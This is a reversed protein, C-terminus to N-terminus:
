FRLTIMIIVYSDNFTSKSGLYGCGKPGDLAKEPEFKVIESRTQALMDGLLCFFGKGPVPKHDPVACPIAM